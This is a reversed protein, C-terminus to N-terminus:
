RGALYREFRFIAQETSKLLLKREDMLRSANGASM